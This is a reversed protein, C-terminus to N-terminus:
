AARLRPVASRSPRPRPDPSYNDPASDIQMPRALLRSKGSLDGEASAWSETRVGGVRYVVGVLVARFGHLGHCAPHLRLWGAGPDKNVPQCLEEAGKRKWATLGVGTGYHGRPRTKKRDQPQLGMRAACSLAGRGERTDGSNRAAPGQSGGVASARPCLKHEQEQSLPAEQPDQCCTAVDELKQSLGEFSREFGLRSRLRTSGRSCAALPNRPLTKAM